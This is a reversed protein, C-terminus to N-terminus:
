DKLNLLLTDAPPYEAIGNTILGLTVWYKGPNKPKNNLAVNYGANTLTIENVKFKPYPAIDQPIRVWDEDYFHHIIYSQYTDECMDRKFPASVVVNVSVTDKMSAEIRKKRSNIKLDEYTYFEPISTAYLPWGQPTIFEEGIKHSDGLYVIRKGTLTDNMPWFDYQNHRGTFVKCYAYRDTYFSFKAAMQYTTLVFEPHDYTKDLKQIFDKWGKMEALKEQKVPITDIIIVTRLVLLLICSILIIRNAYKKLKVSFSDYVLLSLIIFPIIATVNWNMEVRGRFSMFLFVVLFGWLNVKLAKIFSDKSKQKIIFYSFFLLLLPGFYLITGTIYDVLYELTFAKARDSLHYKLSPFEHEFQWLIHPLYLLTSGLAIIYLYKNKLLKINSLLTFGVVFVAHYKSYLMGTIAVTLLLINRWSEKQLFRQYSWFFLAAFFFLGNDPVSTFGLINLSFLGLAIGWFIYPHKKSTLLYTLWLGGTTALISFLRVGLENPLISYGIYNFLAVMPPHDFYGWDLFEAYMWYYAEDHSLEATFGTIINLIFFVFLLAYFPQQSKM